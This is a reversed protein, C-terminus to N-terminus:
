QEEADDPMDVGTTKGALYSSVSTSTTSYVARTGGRTPKFSTTNMGAKRGVDVSELSSALFIIEWGGSKRKNVLDTVSGYSHEQSANEEGDTVVVLVVKGPEATKVSADTREIGYGVADYLATLSRPVLEYTEVDKIPTNEYVAEFSNDFQYLSVTLDIDDLKAQDDFFKKIGAEAEVRTSAMSGSRDVVLTIHGTKRTDNM